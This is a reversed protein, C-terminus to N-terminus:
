VWLQVQVQYVILNKTTAAAAVAVAARLALSNKSKTCSSRKEGRRQEGRLRRSCNKKGLKLSCKIAPTEAKVGVDEGGGEGKGLM